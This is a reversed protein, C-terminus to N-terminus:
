PMWYIDVYGNDFEGNNIKRVIRMLERVLKRLRQLKNRRANVYNFGFNQLGNDWLQMLIDNIDNSTLSNRSQLEIELANFILGTLIDIDMNNSQNSSKM